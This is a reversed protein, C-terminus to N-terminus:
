LLGRLGRLKWFWHVLYFTAVCLPIYTWKIAILDLKSPTEPRHRRVLFVGAWFAIFPILCISFLDGGDLVGVTLILITIQQALALKIADKYPSRALTFFM